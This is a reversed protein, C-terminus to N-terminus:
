HTHMIDNLRMGLGYGYNDQIVSLLTGLSSLAHLEHDDFIIHIYENEMFLGNLCSTRPLFGYHAITLSPSIDLFLNIFKNM